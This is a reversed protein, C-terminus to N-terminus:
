LQVDEVLQLLTAIGAPKQYQHPLHQQITMRPALEAVPVKGSAVTDYKDRCFDVVENFGAGDFM